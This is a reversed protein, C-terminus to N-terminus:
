TRASHSRCTSVHTVASMDGSDSEGAYYGGGISSLRVEDGTFDGEDFHEVFGGDNDDGDEGLGRSVQRRARVRAQYIEGDVVHAIGLIMGFVLADEPSQHYQLSEDRAIWSPSDAQICYPRFVSSDGSSSINRTSSREISISRFRDTVIGAPASYGPNEITQRLGARVLTM